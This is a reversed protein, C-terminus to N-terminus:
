AYAGLYNDPPNSHDSTQYSPPLSIKGSFWIDRFYRYMSFVHVKALNCIDFYSLKKITSLVVSRNSTDCTECWVADGWFITYGYLHSFRSIKDVIM